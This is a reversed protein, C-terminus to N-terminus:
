KLMDIAKIALEKTLWEHNKTHLFRGLRSVAKMDFSDDDIAIWSTVHEWDKCTKHYDNIWTLIENWRGYNLSHPTVGVVVSRHIGNKKFEEQLTNLLTRRWSSSIVICAWTKQILLKLNAVLDIDLDTIMGWLKGWRQKRLELWEGIRILVWDIDLFIVKM